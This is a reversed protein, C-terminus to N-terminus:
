IADTSFEKKIPNHFVKDSIKTISYPLTGKEHYYLMAM